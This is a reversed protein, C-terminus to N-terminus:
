AASPTINIVSDSHKPTPSNERTKPNKSPSFVGMSLMKKVNSVTRQTTTYVTGGFIRAIFNVFKFLLSRHTAIVKNGLATNLINDSETRTSNYINEDNLSTSDPNRTSFFDDGLTKLNDATKKFVTAEDNLSQIRLSESELYLAKVVKYYNYTKTIFTKGSEDDPTKKIREIVEPSALYKLSNAVWRKVREFDNLNDNDLEFISVVPKHDSTSTGEIIKTEPKVDGKWLMRDLRGGKCYHQQKNGGVTRRHDIAYPSSETNGSVSKKKGAYTWGLTPAEETFGHLKFHRAPSPEISFPDLGADGNEEQTHIDRYNLDGVFLSLDTSKGELDKYSTVPIVDDESSYVRSVLKKTEKFRPGDCKSELHVGAVGIIKGDVTFRLTHGGKNPFPKPKGNRHFFSDKNIVQCSSKKHALLTLSVQGPATTFTTHRQKSIPRFDKGLRIHLGDALPYNKSCAEEQSAVIIIDADSLNGQQILSLIDEKRPKRNAMNWTVAAITTM